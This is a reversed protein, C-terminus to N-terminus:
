KGKRAGVMSAQTQLVVSLCIMALGLYFAFNLQRAEGFFLMAMAISYVPELNYTLNVTFATIHKLAQIQLLQLLITSVSSLALLWLIDALSPVMTAVPNFGLYVPVALMMGAAGGMLQYLLHTSAPYGSASAVRRNAITFLSAVLSSVVGLCIGLRYRSDFGFILLIGLLTIVSYLLEHASWRGKSTLPEFVATFFGVLSYCVVGISVNSMKISAFFFVWHIALLVGVGGMRLMARLPVRRIKGNVAMFVLFLLAALVIRYSAMAFGNLTVLKGFLGTTGAILVSIHLKIFAEKMTKIFCFLLILKIYYARCIAKVIM